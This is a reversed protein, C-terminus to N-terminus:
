LDNKKKFIGIYPVEIQGKTSPPAQLFAVLTFFSHESPATAGVLVCVLDGQNWRKGFLDIGVGVLTYGNETWQRLKPVNLLLMLCEEDALQQQPLLIPSPPTQLVKPVALALSAVVRCPNSSKCSHMLANYLREFPFCWHSRMPGWDEFDRLAHLTRHFNYPMHCSGYVTQFGKWAAELEFKLGDATCCRMWQKSVHTHMLGTM